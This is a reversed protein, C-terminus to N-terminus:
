PKTEVFAAANRVLAGVPAPIYVGLLVVIAM